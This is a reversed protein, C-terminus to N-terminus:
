DVVDMQVFLQGQTSNRVLQKLWPDLQSWELYEPIGKSRRLEEETCPVYGSPANLSVRAENNYPFPYRPSSLKMELRDCRAQHASYMSIFVGPPHESLKITLVDEPFEPAPIPEITSPELVIAFGLVAALLVLSSALAARIM